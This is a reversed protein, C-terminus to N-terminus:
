REGRDDIVIQSAGPLVRRTGFVKHTRADLDPWPSVPGVLRVPVLRAIPQRYRTVEFVQGHAVRRMVRKLNQQLERVSISATRKMNLM